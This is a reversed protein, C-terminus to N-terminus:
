RSFEGLMDGLCARNLNVVNSFQDCVEALEFRLMKSNQKKRSKLVLRAVLNAQSKIVEKELLETLTPKSKLFIFEAPGRSQYDTLNPIKM